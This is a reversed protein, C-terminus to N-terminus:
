ANTDFFWTNNAVTRQHSGQGEDEVGQGRVHRKPQHLIFEDVAADGCDGGLEAIRFRRGQMPSVGCWSWHLDGDQEKISMVGYAPHEYDGVYAALDHAPRTNAHRGNGQKRTPRFTRSSM